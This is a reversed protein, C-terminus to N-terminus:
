LDPLAAIMRRPTKIPGSEHHRFSVRPWALCGSFKVRSTNASLVLPSEICVYHSQGSGARGGTANHTSHLSFKQCCSFITHFYYKRAMELRSSEKKLAANVESDTLASLGKTNPISFLFSIFDWAFLHQCDISNYKRKGLAPDPM